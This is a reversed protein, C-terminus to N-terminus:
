EFKFRKVDKYECLYKIFSNKEENGNAIYKFIVQYNDNYHNLRYLKINFKSDTIYKNINEIIKYDEVEVEISFIMHEDNFFEFKYLIVQSTIIFITSICGIFYMGSGFAMGIISTLWIGAATTLGTVSNNKVFIVGAGLFGIGSVVQAAIREVDYNESDAFGYKSIIMAVCAGLCVLLHTRIGAFKRKNERERGIIFGSICACILRILLDVYFNWEYYMNM